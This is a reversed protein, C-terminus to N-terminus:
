SASSSRAARQALQLAERTAALARREANLQRQLAAQRRARAELAQQAWSWGMLFGGCILLAAVVGVIILM